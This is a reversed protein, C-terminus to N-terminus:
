VPAANNAKTSYNITSRQGHAHASGMYLLLVLMNCFVIMNTLAGLNGHIKGKVHQLSLNGATM